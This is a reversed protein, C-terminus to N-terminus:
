KKKSLIRRAEELEDTDLQGELYDTLSEYDIQQDQSVAQSLMAAGQKDPIEWLVRYIKDEDTNFWSKAERLRRLWDPLLRYSPKGQKNAPKSSIIYNLTQREEGEVDGQLDEELSQDYAQKYLEAVRSYDAQTPIDFFAEYLLNENTGGGDIAEYIKSIINALSGEVVAGRLIKDARNKKIRRNVFYGGVGGILLVSGAVILGVKVGTPVNGWFGSAEPQKETEM